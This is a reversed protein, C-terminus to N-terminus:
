ALARGGPGRAPAGGMSAPAAADLLGRRHAVAVAETRSGVGLKALVNSVHVSVTKLSIFLREGIQRNSLGEAVLALVEAERATLLDLTPRRAGPVDLRGRRALDLCAAHLPRAGMLDAAQTALRLQHQAAEREGAELLAQAWRRRSRAEEYRYGYGFAETAARWLEPDDTGLLRGHEAVARALWAVGEPGLPGGRPRGREATARARALLRGGHEVAGSVDAGSARGAAALDALAALALAVLWIGGLFYDDWTRWLHQLAREAEDVGDQPRGARTLADARVGGAILAFQGDLEWLDDFGAAREVVDEDGRAVAAYLDVLALARAQAASGAGGAAGAPSLDGIVFRVLRDFFQQSLGFESWLLGASRARALGDVLTQAAVDLRGAYYHTTALNYVCRQETTLDGADRARRAATTLLQAARDADDVMLVALTAAADAEVAPLDAAQAIELARRANSEAVADHDAGEVNLMVRAHTALTWATDLPAADAPLEALARDAEPPAAVPDAAILYTALQARLRARRAPSGTTLEIAARGLAVARDTRGCRHAARAARDAVAARDVPPDDTLDALRLVEELHGLEEAPALVAAAEDAAQAAARAATALDGAQRAHEALQAASGLGPDSRLVQLYARHLPLREGPLMDAEVVEALLAHRFELWGARDTLVHAAVADRVLDDFAGEAGTAAWVARLLGEGVRRGAVAAVRALRLVQADLRELRAHLVEALTWPLDAGAGAELLEQAFYANGESRAMVEQVREEPVPEGRVVAAFRRLEDGTFPPLELREVRPNRWLEALLPRLPHRRHLDDTRYSVVVLTHEDRLRTALFRLLDRTSSDAWQADEIVLVLPHTASGATGLAALVGDFLQHRGGDDAPAGGEAGAGTLLRALAPRADLVPELATSTSALEAMAEAFPLYPLGVEGLDVCNGTVAIAGTATALDGVHRLLRTKGVGADAGLLVVTPQGRAADGLAALLRAVPAERAVFPTSMLHPM